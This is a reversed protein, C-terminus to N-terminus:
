ITPSNIANDNDVSKTEVLAIRQKDDMIHLTERELKVTEGDNEYERYVEFGGLYIREKMRKPKKGNATDQATVASETVKRVRQGSADYVYWTTEPVGNNIVQQATAQLQDRYDWQMLPLHNMRMMNGHADYTDPEPVGNGITTSSLRNSKKAPQALTTPETLSDEDYTYSRTWNGNAAQHILKEFNGVADYEYAETYSRM